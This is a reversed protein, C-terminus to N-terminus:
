WREAGKGEFLRWRWNGELRRAHWIPLELREAERLEGLTGPSDQWGPILAIVDCAGLLLLGHRLWGQESLAHECGLCELHPVIVACGMRRLASAVIRAREVHEATSTTETATYPGALYIIPTNQIM